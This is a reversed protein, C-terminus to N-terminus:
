EEICMLSERTSVGTHTNTGSANKCLKAVTAPDVLADTFDAGTVDAGGLQAAILNANTFITNRLSSKSLKAKTALVNSCDVPISDHVFLLVFVPGM